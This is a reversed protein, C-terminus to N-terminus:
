GTFILYTRTIYHGANNDLMLSERLYHVNKTWKENSNPVSRTALFEEILNLTMLSQSYLLMSVRMQTGM